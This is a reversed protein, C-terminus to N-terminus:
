LEAGSQCSLRVLAASAVFRVCHLVHGCVDSLLENQGQFLLCGAPIQRKFYSIFTACFCPVHVCMWLCMCMNCLSVCNNLVHAARQTATTM